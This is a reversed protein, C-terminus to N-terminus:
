FPQSWCNKESLQKIKTIEMENLSNLKLVVETKTIGKEGFKIKVINNEFSIENVKKVYAFSFRKSFENQETTLIIPLSLQKFFSGKTFGLIILANKAIYLDCFNFLFNRNKLGITLTSSKTQEIYLETETKLSEILKEYQNERSKISSKVVFFILIFFTFFGIIPGLM